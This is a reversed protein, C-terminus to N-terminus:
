LGCNLNNKIERNKMEIQYNTKAAGYYLIQCKLLMPVLQESCCLLKRHLNFTFTYFLYRIRYTNVLKSKIRFFKMCYRAAGDWVVFSELCNWKGMSRQAGWIVRLIHNYMWIIINNDRFLKTMYSVYMYHNYKISEQYFM